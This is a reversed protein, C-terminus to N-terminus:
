KRQEGDLCIDTTTEINFGGDYCKAIITGATDTRYVKTGMADLRDLADATPHGYKNGAGSSIVSVKPSVAKLFEETSSNESGHHGVKLIDADLNLNLRQMDLESPMEADGTFILTNTYCTVLLVLSYDNLDSYIADSAPALATVRYDDKEIVATGATLEILKAGSKEANEYFNKVITTDPIYEDDILPVLINEIKFKSLIDETGGIHDEHPHTCVLYDINKIGLSSLEDAIYIGDSRNGADILMVTGDPFVLLSCDAQGVDFFYATLHDSETIDNKGSCGSFASFPLIVAIILSLLRKLKM